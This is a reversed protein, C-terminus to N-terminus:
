QYKIKVQIFFGQVAMSAYIPIRGIKMQPKLTRFFLDLLLGFGIRGPNVKIKVTEVNGEKIPIGKKRNAHKGDPNANGSGNDAALRILRLFREPEWSIETM